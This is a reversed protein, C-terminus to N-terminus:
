AERAQPAAFVRQVSANMIFDCAPPRRIGSTREFVRAETPVKTAYTAHASASATNTAAEAHPDPVLELKSVPFVSPPRRLSPEMWRPSPQTGLMQTELAPTAHPAM